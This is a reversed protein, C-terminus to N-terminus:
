INILLKIILYMKKEALWFKVKEKWMYPIKRWVKDSEPFVRSFSEFDYFGRKLFNSKINFKRLLLKENIIDTYIGKERFFAEVERVCAIHDNISKLTQFSLREQNYQVYHYFAKPISKFSKAYYYLKVSIIYDEGINIPSIKFNDFLSRRILLKWLVTNIDYNLCKIMNECCTDAYDEHHYRIVDNEYDCVIDSGVIDIRGDDTTKVLSEVMIPEIWDDSDVFLVYEGTAHAICDVRSAAIGQNHLHNIITYRSKDIGYQSITDNLVQLSNDPSGDNVFVYDINQYTQTFVSDLTRKLYPEVKYIPVLVSVKLLQEM